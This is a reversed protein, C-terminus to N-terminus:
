GLSQAVRVVAILEPAESLSASNYLSSANFELGKLL